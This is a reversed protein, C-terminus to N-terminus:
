LGKFYYKNLKLYAKAEKILGKLLVSKVFLWKIYINTANNQHPGWLFPHLDYFLTRCLRSPIDSMFEVTGSVNAVKEELAELV